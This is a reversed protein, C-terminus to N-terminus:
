TLSTEIIAYNVNFMDSENGGEGSFLGPCRIVFAQDTTQVGIVTCEGGAIPNSTDLVTLLILSTDTLSQESTDSEFDPFVSFTQGSIKQICPRTDPNDTCFTGADDLSTPTMPSTGFNFIVGPSNQEVVPRDSYTCEIHQGNEINVIGGINEPCNGDGTILIPRDDGDPGSITIPTHSAVTYTIMPDSGTMGTNPLVTISFPDGVVENIIKITPPDVTPAQVDIFNDNNYITCEIKDGGKVIFPTDLTSPCQTDGAILVFKYGDIQTESMKYTGADVTITSGSLVDITKTTNTIKLKFDPDTSPALKNDTTVAKFLTITATKSKAGNHDDDDSECKEKKDGHSMHAPWASNSITITQPNNTNGPPIHCIEIKDDDHSDKSNSNSSGSNSGTSYAMQTVGFGSTILISTLTLIAILQIKNTMLSCVFLGLKFLSHQENSHM